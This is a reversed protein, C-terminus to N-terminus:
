WEIESLLWVSRDVYVRGDLEPDVHVPYLLRAPGRARADLLEGDARTALVLPWREWDERPIEAAYGDSARLTVAEEEHAGVLRLVDSLLVGQFVMGKPDFFLASPIEVMPLREIEAISLARGSSAPGVRITAVDARVDARPAIEREGAQAAAPAAPSALACAIAFPIALRLM